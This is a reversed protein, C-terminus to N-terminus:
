SVSLGREVSLEGHRSSFAIGVAASKGIEAAARWHRAAARVEGRDDLVQAYEMHCDRLRDPMKLDALTEIARLFHGDAVRPNGMQEEIRGLRSQVSSLVIREGLATGAEEAQELYARAFDLRGKRLYVEGLNVLIFGRGRREMNLQEAGNMAKLFHQEASDLLGEQLMLDGLDSEVRYVGSQDAEISYLTLAKDLHHRANAPQRLQQCAIGLGHHMKAMQLLDKVASSAEVAAEYYSIALPWSQAVVYMGALHGLIRAEIQQPRPEIKRCRELAQNALAVAQPDELLGLASAEWDLAEVALWELGIQEFRGRALPLHLLAEHPQVLRCYAQGLYFHVMAMAESSWRRNLLTPGFLVVAQFDRAAIMQELQVIERHPESLGPQAHPALLFYEIPKRTQRAILRLTEISPKVRGNEIHHVATRSVQNAAVQALSLKAEFRAQRVSGERIPIGKRRGRYKGNLMASLM